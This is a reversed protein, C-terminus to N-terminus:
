GMVRAILEDKSLEPEDLQIAYAKRILEGMAPGPEVGSQILEKGGVLPTAKELEDFMRWCESAIEHYEFEGCYEGTGDIDRIGFPRSGVWDARSLYGADELSAHQGLDKKLRNWRSDRAGGTVLGFPRMHTRSLAAVGEVLKKEGTMRALFSRVIDEGLADHKPCSLDDQIAEPKGMDHCLASFVLVKRRLGEIGHEACLKAMADVVLLTHVWVSGEPHHDPNQPCAVLKNLEPFFILWGSKRLVELGISPKEAKLLLKCFEEAVRERALSKWAEDRAMSRMLMMTKPDVNPAKRAALQMARLPRVPDQVFLEPDTAKLVGARLDEVGGFPDVIREEDMDYLMSNITFDRRRAAEEPTMEPDFACEFDRHGTGVCNDKRPVSVDVEVGDTADQSLKLIGFAAGVPKPRWEAVAKGVQELSLGYCELDWDKPTKGLLSDVVAGGVLMVVAGASRLATAVDNVVLPTEIRKHTDMM